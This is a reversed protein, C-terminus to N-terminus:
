HKVLSPEYRFWGGSGVCEDCSPRAAATRSFRRGDVAPRIRMRYSSPPPSASTSAPVNFILKSVSASFHVDPLRGAVTDGAQVTMGVTLGVPALIYSKTGDEYQVLAIRCTRNPDYEIGIVKAPIGDKKRRFDVKRYKRRVGGGRHRVTIKGQNNRGAKHRLDTTLSAPVGVARLRVRTNKRCSRSLPRPPFVGCPISRTCTTPAPTIPPSM